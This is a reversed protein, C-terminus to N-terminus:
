IDNDSLSATTLNHTFSGYIGALHRLSIYLLCKQWCSQLDYNLRWKCNYLAISYFPGSFWYVNFLWCTLSRNWSTLLIGSDILSAIIWYRAVLHGLFNIFGIVLLKRSTLLTNSTTFEPRQWVKFHFTMAMTFINVSKWIYVFSHNELTFLIFIYICSPNYDGAYIHPSTIWLYQM